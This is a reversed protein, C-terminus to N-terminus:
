ATTGVDSASFIENEGGFTQARREFIRQINNHAM